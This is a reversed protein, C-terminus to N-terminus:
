PVGALMLAPSNIQKGAFRFNMENTPVFVNWAGRSWKKPTPSSIANRRCLLNHALKEVLFCKCFM